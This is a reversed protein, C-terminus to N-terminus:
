SSRGQSNAESITRETQELKVSMAQIRKRFVDYCNVPELVPDLFMRGMGKSARSVQRIIGALSVKFLDRVSDSGTESEIFGRITALQEQTEPFFWHDLHKDRPIYRDDRRKSRSTFEDFRKLRELITTSDVYTTKVRSLLVFLPNVDLGISPCGARLAEVLTTGSGVMPDVIPGEGDTGYERIFREAVPPPFKGFFRFFDHTLYGLKRSSEVIRWVETDRKWQALGAEDLYRELSVSDDGLLELSETQNPSYSVSGEQNLDVM